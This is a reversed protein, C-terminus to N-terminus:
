PQVYTWGSSQFDAIATLGATTYKVGPILQATANGAPLTGNAIFGRATNQCFYFEVGRDMLSVVQARFQNVGPDNLLHFGGPGHVIVAIEYDRGVEMGHTTEYDDIINAINGLAYPRNCAPDICRANDQILLKVKHRRELCKTLSSASTGDAAAGFEDDLTLGNVEGVPCAQDGGKGAWASMPQAALAIVGVIAFLSRKLM